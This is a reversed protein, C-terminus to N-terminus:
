LPPNRYHKAGAIVFNKEGIKLEAGEDVLMLGKKGTMPNTACAALLVAIATVVQARRYVSRM